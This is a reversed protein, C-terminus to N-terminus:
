RDSLVIFLVGLAILFLIAGVQAIFPAYRPYCHVIGLWLFGIALSLIATYFLTWKFPTYDIPAM